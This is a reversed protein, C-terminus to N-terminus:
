TNNAIDLKVRIGGRPGCAGIFRGVQFASKEYSFTAVKVERRRRLEVVGKEIYVMDGYRFERARAPPCLLTVLGTNVIAIHQQQKHVKKKDTEIGDATTFGILQMDSKNDAYEKKIAAQDVHVYCHKGQQFVACHAPAMYAESTDVLPNIMVGITPSQQNCHSGVLDSVPDDRGGLDKRGRTGCTAKGGTSSTKKGAARATAKSSRAIERVLRRVNGAWVAAATGSVKKGRKQTPRHSTGILSEASAAFDSSTPKPLLQKAVHQLDDLTPQKTYLVRSGEAPEPETVFDADSATLAGAVAEEPSYATVAFDIATHAM